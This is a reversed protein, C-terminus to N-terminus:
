IKIYTHWKQRETGEHTPDTIMKGETVLKIMNNELKIKKGNKTKEATKEKIKNNKRENYKRKEAKTIGLEKEIYEVEECREQWIKKLENYCEKWMSWGINKEEKERNMKMLNENVIGRLLEWERTKNILVDSDEQLFAIFNKAIKNIINVIEEKGEKRIKEENNIIEDEITDRITRRNNTCTWVHNWDEEGKKCRICTKSEIGNTNRKWLVAYTPLEKILNKIKYAKEREDKGSTKYDKIEEKNMVFKLSREWDFEQKYNRWFLDELAESNLKENKYKLNIKTKAWRRYDGGIINQRWYLNFENIILKEENITLIIKKKTNAENRQKEKGKTKKTKRKKKDKERSTLNIKKKDCYDEIWLLKNLMKNDIRRRKSKNTNFENIM